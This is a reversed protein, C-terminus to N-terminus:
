SQCDPCFFTGRGGLSIRKIKGGCKNPCDKGNEGYVLTHEQFHGKEGFANRYNNESSGQWKFGLKLAKELCHFLSVISGDDLEKGKRRPDIGALFLAENAYINGVGAIKEQDMLTIKIPRNSKSVIKKFKEETLDRFPEPGLKGIMDEVSKGEKFSQLKTDKFSKVIKMWGFVRLDNFYLSDGDTFNIIVRTHNNPLNVLDEDVINLNKPQRIGRYVLQGTLKLHIALSLGNDLDIIIVKAFRRLGKVKSRVILSKDDPFSKPKRIEVSEIELGKLVQELQMRITEVEPLEPM